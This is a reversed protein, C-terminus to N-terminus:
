GEKQYTQTPYNHIPSIKKPCWEKFWDDLGSVICNVGDTLTYLAGPGFPVILQSKRLHDDFKM